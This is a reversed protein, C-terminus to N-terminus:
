KIKKIGKNDGYGSFVWGLVPLAPLSEKSKYHLQHGTVKKKIYLEFVNIQGHLFLM